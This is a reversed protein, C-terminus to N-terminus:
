PALKGISTFNAIVAVEPDTLMAEVSDYAHLGYFGTAQKLRVPDLDAVGAVELGPHKALTAMYHDFVYGCGIIGFKM